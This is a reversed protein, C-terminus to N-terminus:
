KAMQEQIDPKNSHLTRQPSESRDQANINRRRKRRQSADMIKVYEGLNAPLTALGQNSKNLGFPRQAPSLHRLALEL